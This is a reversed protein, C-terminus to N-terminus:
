ENSGESQSQIMSVEFPNNQPQGNYTLSPTLIGPSAVAQQSQLQQLQQQQLQQQQHQQHLQQQQAQYQQFQASATSKGLIPTNNATLALPTSMQPISMVSPISSLMPVPLSSIPGQTTSSQPVSSQSNNEKTFLDNIMRYSSIELVITVDKTSKTLTAFSQRVENLIISENMISKTYGLITIISKLYSNVDDYFKKKEQITFTKFSQNVLKSKIKKNLEMSTVCTNTLGKIKSIVQPSFPPQAEESNNEENNETLNQNANANALASQAIANNLDAYVQSSVTLLSRLSDYLKEDIENYENLQQQAITINSSNASPNEPIRLPPLQRFKPVSNSSNQPSAENSQVQVQSPSIIKFANLLETYCLFFSLFLSRIFSVDENSKLNNSLNQELYEIIKKFNLINLIISKLVDDIPLIKSNKDNEFSKINLNLQDISNQIQIMLTNIEKKFKENVNLNSIKNLSSQFENISTITKKAVNIIKFNPPPNISSNNEPLTSLKKFSNNEESSSHSSLDHPIRSDTSISIATFSRNRPTIDSVSSSVRPQVPEYEKIIESSLDQNPRKIIFGMRKAAKSSVYSESTSRSRELQRITIKGNESVNSKPDDDEIVEEEFEPETLLFTKIYKISEENTELKISEKLLEAHKAIFPNEEIELFKLNKLTLLAKPIKNFKNGKLSLIKLNKKLYGFDFDENFKTIENYSIDLIELSSLYTLIKPFKSFKNKHIDLYKLNQLTSFNSPLTTLLNKQLSLKEISDKIIDVSESPFSEIQLNTLKLTYKDESQPDLTSNHNISSTILQILRGRSIAEESSM